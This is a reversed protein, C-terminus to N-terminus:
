SASARNPFALLVVAFALSLGTLLFSSKPDHTLGDIWGVLYAGLRQLFM